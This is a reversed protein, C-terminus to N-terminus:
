CLVSSMFYNYTVTDLVAPVDNEGWSIELLFIKKTKPNNIGAFIEPNIRIINSPLIVELCM